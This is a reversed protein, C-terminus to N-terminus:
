MAASANEGLGLERRNVKRGQDFSIALFKARIDTLRLM